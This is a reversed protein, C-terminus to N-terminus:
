KLCWAERGYLITAKVYSRYVAGKLRPPFTKGYSPKDCEGIKARGCRARATVAAERGVSVRDGLYTFEKVTELEGCNKKM